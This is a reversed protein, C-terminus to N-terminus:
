IISKKFGKKILSSLSGVKAFSTKQVIILELKINQEGKKEKRMNKEKGIKSSLGWLSFLFDKQGSYLKTLM